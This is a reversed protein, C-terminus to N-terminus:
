LLEVILADRPPVSATLCNGEVTFSPEGWHVSGTKVPEPRSVTIKGPTDGTNLLWLFRRGNGEHLRAHIDASVSCTLLPAQGAMAPLSAFFARNGEDGNLHYRRSLYSGLLLTKGKGVANRVAIVEGGYFGVAEAGEMPTYTQLYGCGHLPMGELAFPIDTLIDPMIEVNNELAGFLDALGRGPQVPAVALSSDFYGPCAESVLFGGAVVWARLAEIQAGDLCVPYPLYLLKYENINEIRVFDGQLGADFFGRYAGYLMSAYLDEAGYRALLCSAEASGPVCLIGVDGTVPAADMLAKQEPHNCWKAIVAAMESRATPKGDNGYPGFAGFLPGNLLPRWRVYLIGRAGCALSTLDWIRIDQPRVIRGDDRPRGDTQPQLWLPGGQMEAHWFPKGRSGARVLDIAHWQKWPESGKRAPVWTCGYAEVASAALWDDSGGMPLNPITSATGHAAILCDPDVSRLTEIRWRFHKYANERRFRLWDMSEPYLGLQAPPMVQDWRTFSFRKWAAMLSQLDGYKEQLWERFAARTHECYCVDHPYNCENWVDYGLLAPHGKYREAMARLFKGCADRAVPNDLCVGAYFGGTASSMGMSNVPKQGDPHECLWEPHDVTLWEPIATDFAAIITKIGNKAALELHEDYDKWDFKGPAVETSGWMLWHRFINMGDAAAQAYDRAWDERPPNTKRFYVAGFPVQMPIKQNM